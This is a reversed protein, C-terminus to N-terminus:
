LLTEVEFSCSSLPFTLSLNATCQETEVHVAAQLVDEWASTAATMSSLARAAERERVAAEREGAPCLLQGENRFEFSLVSFHYNHM